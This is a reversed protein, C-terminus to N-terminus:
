AQVGSRDILRQLAAYQQDECSERMVFSDPFLHACHKRIVQVKDPPLKAIQDKTMGNAFAASAVCSAILISLAKM